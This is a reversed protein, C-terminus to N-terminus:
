AYPENYWATAITKQEDATLKGWWHGAKDDNDLNLRGSQEEVTGNSGDGGLPTPNSADNVFGIATAVSATIALMRWMNKM